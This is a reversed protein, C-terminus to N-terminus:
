ITAAFGSGPEDDGGRERIGQRRRRWRTKIKVDDGRRDLLLGMVKYHSSQVISSLRFCHEHAGFFTRKGILSSAIKV